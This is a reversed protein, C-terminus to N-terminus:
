FPLWSGGKAVVFAVVATWAVVEVIGTLLGAMALGRGKLDAHRSIAWLALGGLVIAAVGLVMGACVIGLMAVVFSAIALGSTKAGQGEQPAAVPPLPAARPIPAAPPLPPAADRAGLELLIAADQAARTAGAGGAPAILPVAPLDALPSPPTQPPAAASAPAAPASFRTSWCAACWVVGGDLRIWEDAGTLPRNCRQCALGERSTAM